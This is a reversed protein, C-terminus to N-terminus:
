ELAQRQLHARFLPFLERYTELYRDSGIHRSARAAFFLENQLEALTKRSKQKAIASCKELSGYHEYGNFSMAFVFVAKANNADPLDSESLVVQM